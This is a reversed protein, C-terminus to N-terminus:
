QRPATTRTGRMFDQIEQLTLVGDKNADMAKFIREHAAQFEQLSVTGDGDSDMMAFLMRMMMGSQMGGAGMMGGGRMMGFGMDGRGWDHYRRLGPHWGTIESDDDFDDGAGHRPMQAGQPTREQQQQPQAQQQMMPGQQATAATGVCALIFASTALMLVRKQMKVEESM